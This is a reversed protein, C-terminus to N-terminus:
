DVFHGQCTSIIYSAQTQTPDYTGTVSQINAAEALLARSGMSQMGDPDRCCEELLVLQNSRDRPRM